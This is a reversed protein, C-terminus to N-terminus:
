IVISVRDDGGRRMEPTASVSVRLENLPVTRAVEAWLEPANANDSRHRPFLALAQVHHEHLWSFDRRTLAPQGIGVAQSSALAFPLSATVARYRALTVPHVFVPLAFVVRGHEGRLAGSTCSLNAARVTRSERQGTVPRVPLASLGWLACWARADDVPGPARLGTPTRSDARDGGLEDVVSAGELGDAISQIGRDAVIRALPALRNRIFEEGRNRTKMEWASAGRDPLHEGQQNVSWDSPRGLAGLFRRTLWAESDISDILPKRFRELEAFDDHTSLKGIRPSLPSRRGATLEEVTTLWRAQGQASAHDRVHASVETLSMGLGALVLTRRDEWGVRPTVGAQQELIAALGLGFLHDFADQYRAHPRLVGIQEEVPDGNERESESM